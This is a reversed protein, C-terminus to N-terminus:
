RIVGRKRLLIERIKRDLEKKFAAKITRSAPKKMKRKVFVAWPSVGHLKTIPLRSKGVRKFVGGHLKPSLKGPRPGMFAGRATQRGKTKSVKYSTGSSKQSPSFIRLSPRVSKNLSVSSVPNYRTARIGKRIFAKVERQSTNLEKTVEKAIASVSKTVTKNIVQAISARMKKSSGDLAAQLRRLQHRDASITINM